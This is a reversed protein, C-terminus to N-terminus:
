GKANNEIYEVAEQPSNSFFLLKALVHPLFGEKEMRELQRKIGDYFGNVNLFVIEKAHIEHKKLELVETIEDLTGIGGPLVVIADSLELLKAKRQALTETVIMEDANKHEQHRVQQMIVGVARGGAKQVADAVVGMTGVFGGGWVLTHGKKGILTGLEDAAVRYAEDSNYASSFVCINM